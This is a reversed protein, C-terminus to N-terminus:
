NLHAQMMHLSTCTCYSHLHLHMFGYGASVIERAFNPTAPCMNTLIRKCQTCVQAHLTYTCTCNCAAMDLRSSADHLTPHQQVCTLQSASADHACKHMHLKTCNCNCAATNLLSSIEHLTPHRQVDKLQSASADHAYKHMHLNLALATAHLQTWGHRSRSCFHIDSSM